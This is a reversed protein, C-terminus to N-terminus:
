INRTTKKSWIKPNRNTHIVALVEVIRLKENIYFHVMHPFRKVIMCRIKNYRIAYIEPSKELSDIQNILTKQFRKGLDTQQENYWDTIERIDALAEPDIKIKFKIM